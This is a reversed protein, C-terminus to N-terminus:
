VANESPLVTKTQRMRRYVRRGIRQAVRSSHIAPSVEGEKSTNRRPRSLVRNLSTHFIELRSADLLSSAVCQPRHLRSTTMTFRLYLSLSSFLPPFPSEIRVTVYLIVEFKPRPRQVLDRSWQCADTSHQGRGRGRGVAIDVCRAVERSEEEGLVDVDVCQRRGEHCGSIISSTAASPSHRRRPHLGDVSTRAM